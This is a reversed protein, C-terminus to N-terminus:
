VYHKFIIIHTFYCVLCVELCWLTCLLCTFLNTILIFTHPEHTYMHFHISLYTVHSDKHSLMITPILIGFLFSRVKLM